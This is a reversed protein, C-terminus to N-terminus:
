SVAPKQLCKRFQWFMWVNKFGPVNKSVSLGWSVEVSVLLIITCLIHLPSMPSCPCLAGRCLLDQQQQSVHGPLVHYQELPPLFCHPCVCLPVEWIQAKLCSCRVMSCNLSGPSQLCVIVKSVWGNCTCTLSAPLVVHRVFLAWLCFFEAFAWSRVYKKRFGPYKYEGLIVINFCLGWCSTKLPLAKSLCRIGKLRRYCLILYM